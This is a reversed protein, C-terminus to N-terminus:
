GPRSVRGKANVSEMRVTRKLHKYFGNQNGSEIQKVAYFEAVYQHSHSFDRRANIREWVKACATKPVRWQKGWSPDGRTRVLQRAEATAHVAAKVAIATEEIM